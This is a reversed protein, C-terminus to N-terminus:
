VFVHGAENNHKLPLVLLPTLLIQLLASYMESWQLSDSHKSNYFVKEGGWAPQLCGECCCSGTICDSSCKGLYQKCTKHKEDQSVVSNVVSCQNLRVHLFFFFLFSARFIFSLSKTTAGQVLLPWQRGVWEDRFVERLRTLNAGRRGWTKRPLKSVSSWISRHRRNAGNTSYGLRIM